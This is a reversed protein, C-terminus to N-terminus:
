FYVRARLFGGHGATGYETDDGGISILGNFLLDVDQAFSYAVTPILVLSGDGANTLGSLGLNWLQGYQRRLTGFVMGKGLSRRDGFTRGLWLGIPYPDNWEARGDYYGEIAILTGDAFSYNGGVTAEIWTEGVHDSWTAEGWVGLGLVEGSVDGGFTIRRSRPQAPTGFGALLPREHTEAALASLDLGALHHRVRVVKGSTRLGSVPVYAFLLESLPGLAVAATVAGVGEREYGPEFLNKPRFLETPNFAMGAGWALYQKGMTVQFPGPQIAIYAHNIFHRDEVGVVTSGVLPEFSAPLVDDLRVSTNGRYLQWVVAFSTRTGKGAESELDVRIRDYDLQSWGSRLQTTSYQHEFYGRIRPGQQANATGAGAVLLILGLRSIRDIM